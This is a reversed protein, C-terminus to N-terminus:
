HLRARRGVREKGERWGEIGGGGGTQRHTQTGTEEHIHGQGESGREAKQPPCFYVPLPVSQGVFVSVSLCGRRECDYVQTSSWRCRLDRAAVCAAAPARM